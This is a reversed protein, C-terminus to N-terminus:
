ARQEAVAKTVPKTELHVFGRPERSSRIARQGFTRHHRDFRADIAWAPSTHPDLVVHEEAWVARLNERAERALQHLERSAAAVGPAGKLLGKISKRYTFFSISIMSSDVTSEISIVDSLPIFIRMELLGCCRPATCIAAGIGVIIVAGIGRRVGPAPM